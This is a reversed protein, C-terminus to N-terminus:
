RCSCRDGEPVNALVQDLSVGTSKAGLTGCDIMM